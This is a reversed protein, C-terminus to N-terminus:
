ETSSAQELLEVRNQMANIKLRLYPVLIFAPILGVIVGFALAGLVLVFLSMQPLTIFILDLAVLQENARSFAISVLLILLFLLIYLIKSIM